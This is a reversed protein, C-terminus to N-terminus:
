KKEITKFVYIHKIDFEFSTSVLTKGTRSLDFAPVIVLVQLMTDATPDGNTPRKISM